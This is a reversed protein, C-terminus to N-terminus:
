PLAPHWLTLDATLSRLFVQLMMQCHWNRGYRAMFDAHFAATQLLKLSRPLHSISLVPTSTPNGGLYKKFHQNSVRSAPPHFPFYLLSNRLCLKCTKPIYANM